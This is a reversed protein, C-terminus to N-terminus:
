RGKVTATCGGVQRVETRKKGRASAEGCLLGLFGQQFFLTHEYPYTCRVAIFKLLCINSYSDKSLDMGRVKQHQSLKLNLIFTETSLFSWYYPTEKIEQYYMEICISEPTIYSVSHITNVRSFATSSTSTVFNLLTVWVYSLMM